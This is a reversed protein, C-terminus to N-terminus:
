SAFLAPLETYPLEAGAATASAVRRPVSASTAAALTTTSWSGSTPPRAPLRVDDSVAETNGLLRARWSPTARRRPGRGDVPRALMVTWPLGSRSPSRRHRSPPARRRRRHRRAPPAPHGLHRHDMATERVMGVREISSWPRASTSAAGRRAPRGLTEAVGLAFLAQARIVPNFPQHALAVVERGLDLSREIEGNRGTLWCLVARLITSSRFGASATSRPPPRWRRRPAPSTAACNPSRASASRSCRPPATTAWARPLRRDAGRLMAMSAALDGAVYTPWGTSHTSWRSAAVPRGRVRALERAEDNLPACCRPCRASPRRPPALRDGADRAAARSRGRGPRWRDGRADHRGRRHMPRRHRRSMGASAATRAVDIADMAWTRRATRGISLLGSWM